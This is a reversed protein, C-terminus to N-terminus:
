EKIAGIMVGKVFYKQLFPYLCVIPLIAVIIVTYKIQVLSMQQGIIDVMDTHVEDGAYILMRVLFVQLPQLDANPIYLLATFYTNWFHVAAYLTIIAVLPKSLPIVIGALIRGEPAGDIRASEILSEPISSQFYVRAIILNWASTAGLLPIVWRTNYLHLQNVLIFSPILGGSFFMTVAIYTMIPGRLPFDKRSLAYAGALTIVVHLASGVATYWVTNYFATWIERSKLTTRYSELSFGRPFLWVRQALVEYPDSISMSLVYLFPYVAAFAMLGSFAYLLWDAPGLRRRGYLASGAPGVM